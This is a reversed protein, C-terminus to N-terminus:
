QKFTQILEKIFSDFMEAINDSNVGLLVKIKAGSEKIDSKTDELLELLYRIYWSDHRIKTKIKYIFGSKSYMTTLFEYVICNHYERVSVLKSSIKIVKTDVPDQKIYNLDCSGMLCESDFTIGRETLEDDLFKNEMKM